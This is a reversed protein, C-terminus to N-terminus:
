GRAEPQSRTIERHGEVIYYHTASKGYVETHVHVVKPESHNSSSRLPPRPNLALTGALAGSYKLFQRRSIDRSQSSIRKCM